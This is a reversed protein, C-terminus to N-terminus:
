DKKASPQDDDSYEELITIEGTGDIEVRAKSSSGDPNDSVYWQEGSETIYMNASDGLSIKDLNQSGGSKADIVIIEGTADDIHVQMKVTKGDSDESVYWLQGEKTIYLNEYDSLSIKELDNSNKSKTQNDKFSKAKSSIEKSSVPVTPLSPEPENEVTADLTDVDEPEPEIEFTEPESSEINTVVTKEITNTRHFSFRIYRIGFSLVTVLSLFIAAITLQKILSKTYAKM